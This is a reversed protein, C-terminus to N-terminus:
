ITQLQKANQCTTCTSVVAVQFCWQFARFYSGSADHRFVLHVAYTPAIMASHKRAIAVQIFAELLQRDAEGGKLNLDRLSISLSLVEGLPWSAPTPPVGSIQSIEVGVKPSAVRATKGEGM